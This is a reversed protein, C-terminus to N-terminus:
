NNFLIAHVIALNHNSFLSIIEIYVCYTFVNRFCLSGLKASVTSLPVLKIDHTSSINKERTVLAIAFRETMREHEKCLFIDM